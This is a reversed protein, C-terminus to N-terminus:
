HVPVCACPAGCSVMGGGGSSFSECSCSQYGDCSCVNQCVCDADCACVTETPVPTPTAVSDCTCVTETPAPTPTAVADCTCVSLCTCVTHTSVVTDCSCYTGMVQTEFEHKKKDYDDVFYTKMSPKFVSNGDVIIEIQPKPLAEDSGQALARDDYGKNAM